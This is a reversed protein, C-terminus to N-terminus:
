DGEILYQRIFRSAYQPHIESRKLKDNCAMHTRKEVYDLAEFVLNQHPKFGIFWYQTPKRQRDGNERRDNDIFTPKLAWYSTLFHPKNAPNEIVLKLNREIAILALKTIAIYNRYLDEFLYLDYELKQKADWKAM